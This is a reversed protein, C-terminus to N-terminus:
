SVQIYDGIIYENSLYILLIHISNDYKIDFIFFDIFLLTHILVQFHLM